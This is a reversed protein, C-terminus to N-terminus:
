NPKYEDVTISVGAVDGGIPPSLKEVRVKARLVQPEQTWIAQLIREVVHELLKAPQAMERAVIAHLRVYDVTDSLNDSKKSQTLDGWVWLDVRYDTGIATEQPLCGHFAYLRINRLRIVDM